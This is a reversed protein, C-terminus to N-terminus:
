MQQQQLLKQAKPNCIVECSGHGSPTCFMIYAPFSPLPTEGLLLGDEHWTCVWRMCDIELTWRYADKEVDFTSELRKLRREGDKTPEECTARWSLANGAHYKGCITHTIDPVSTVLGSLDGGADGFIKQLFKPTGEQEGHVFILGM